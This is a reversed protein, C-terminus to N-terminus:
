NSGFLFEPNRETVAVFADGSLTERLDGLPEEPAMDFPLDTGFVVRDVGVREVLYRLAGADHTISDFWIRDLYVWPDVPAESLEPRVRRAHRLRGAQYPFYGGAHALLLRLEAHRDLVGSCILREVAITTELMNGIVNGLYFDDLGAHPGNYAPHILVPLRLRAAASWFEDVGPDDLPKGAVSTGIEVGAAGAAAADALVDAARAPNQLPVVALWRLRDRGAAAFEALGANVAEVMADVLEDDVHYYFLPPAASLVAVDIGNADLERLKADSDLFSEHVEFEVHVGGKWLRNEIRVGYRPDRRFLEVAPEPIVHNHADITM